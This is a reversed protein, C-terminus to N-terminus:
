SASVEKKPAALWDNLPHRKMAAARQPDSVHVYRMTTMITQHGLIEKVVPLAEGAELLDSACTHRFQHLSKLPVDAHEAIKHIGRSIAANKMRTGWKNVFLAEQDLAGCTELLNHRRPLYSEICRWVMAPVSVVRQRGTKRGDVRLTAEDRNWDSLNLRSVEGRRIGAGYLVALVAMWAYRYYELRSRAASEWLRTMRERDIRQPLRHRPDRKPAAIWRLPNSTWIGQRVLYEGMGRMSSINTCILSRSRCLNRDRIYRIITEADL